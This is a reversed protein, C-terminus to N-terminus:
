PLNSLLIDLIVYVENNTEYGLSLVAAGKVVDEYRTLLLSRDESCELIM